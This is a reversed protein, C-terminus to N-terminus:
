TRADVIMLVCSFGRISLVNIFCFDIHILEGPRLISTNMVIGKPVDVMAASDCIWCQIGGGLLRKSFRKPLGVITQHQCMIRFKEHSVHCLRRHLLLYNALSIDSSFSHLVKPPITPCVLSKPIEPATSMSFSPVTSTTTSDIDEDFKMIEITTYDLLESSHNEKTMKLFFKQGTESVLRVWSLAETRVSRYRNYHKIAPPSLTNQPFTPAYYCPYLSIIIETKPIRMFVIGLGEVTAASGSVQTIVGLAPQLVYFFDKCTFIHSNSGGDWHCQVKNSFVSFITSPIADFWLRAKAFTSPHNLDGIKSKDFTAVAMAKPKPLTDEGINYSDFIMGQDECRACMQGIPGKENCSACIGFEDSPTDSIDDIDISSSENSPLVYFQTSDTCSLCRDGVQGHDQCSPCSGICFPPLVVPEDQNPLYQTTGSSTPPCHLCIANAPGIFCCRPCRGLEQSQYSEVSTDNSDYERDSFYERDSSNYQENSTSFENTSLYVSEDVSEEDSFDLPDLYLMEYEYEPNECTACIEGAVGRHGCNLCEGLNNEEKEPAYADTSTLVSQHDSDSIDKDQPLTPNFVAASCHPRPLVDKYLFDDNMDTDFLLSAKNAQPDPLVQSNEQLNSTVPTASSYNDPDNVTMQENSQIDNPDTSNTSSISYSDDFFYENNSDTTIHSKDLTDLIFNTKPPVLTASKPLMTSRDQENENQRRDNQHKLNYQHLITRMDKDPNFDPGRFCCQLPNGDPPHIRDLIKHLDKNSYGCARCPTSSAPRYRRRQGQYEQQQYPSKQHNPRSGNIGDRTPKGAKVFSPPLQDSPKSQIRFKSTFDIIEPLGKPVIVEEYIGKLTYPFSMAHNNPRRFFLVFQERLSELSQHFHCLSSLLLVFRYLLKNAQGSKDEQLEIENMMVTARCYFDIVPEGDVM